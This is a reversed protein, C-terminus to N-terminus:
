IVTKIPKNVPFKLGYKKGYLRKAKLIAEKFEKKTKSYILRTLEELATNYSYYDIDLNGISCGTSLEIASFCEEEKDIILCFQYGHVEYLIGENEKIGETTARKVIIKM